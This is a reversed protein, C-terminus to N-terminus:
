KSFKNKAWLLEEFTYAKQTTITFKAFELRASDPEIIELDGNHSACWGFFEPSLNVKTKVVFHDSSHLDVVIRMKYGFKDYIDPVLRGPIRLTVDVPESVGMNSRFIRDKGDAKDGLFSERVEIFVSDEDTVVVNRMRDIVLLCCDESLFSFGYLYYHGNNYLIAIPDVDEDDFVASEFRNWGKFYRFSLGKKQAIAQEIKSIKDFTDTGKRRGRPRSAREHWLEKDLGGCLTTLKNCLDDAAEPSLFAASQVADFVFRLEEYSLANNNYYLCEKNERRGVYLKGIRESADLVSTRKGSLKTKLRELRQSDNQKTVKYDPLPNDLASNIAAINARLLRPNYKDKVTEDFIESARDQEILVAQIDEVSLPRDQGVGRLIEWVRILLSKKENNKNANNKEM